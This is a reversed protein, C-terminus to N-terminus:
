NELYIDRVIRFRAVALGLLAAVAGASFASARRADRALFPLIATGVGVGAGIAAGILGYSIAGFRFVGFEDGGGTAAILAAEALGVLAGGVFGGVMGAPIKRFADM